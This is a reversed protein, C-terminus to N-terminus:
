MHFLTWVLLVLSAALLGVLLLFALDILLIQRRLQRWQRVRQPASDSYWGFVQFFTRVESGELDTQEAIEAIRNEDVLALPDNREDRSLVAIIADV